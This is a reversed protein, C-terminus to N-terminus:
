KPDLSAVKLDDFYTVSDAKTWLGVKGPGSFTDNEVEFLKQENFFIEALNGVMRVKLTHWQGSLVKTKVGYAKPNGMIGISTRKGGVTKYAVVNDELANARVVFYNNSDQLRWVIGAAQDVKGSVAKFRVAVEVAGGRFSDLILLPYRASTRDQSLQAVVNKASPADAQAVVHWLVPGGGGTLAAAFGRPTQGTADTDFSLISRPAEEAAFGAAAGGAFAVVFVAFRQTTRSM